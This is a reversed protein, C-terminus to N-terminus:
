ELDKQLRKAIDRGEVTLEYTIGGRTPHERIMGKRRLKKLTASIYGRQDSRFKSKIAEEPPHKKLSGKVVEYFKLLVVKEFPTLEPM